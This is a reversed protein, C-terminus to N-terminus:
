PVRVRAWVSRLVKTARAHGLVAERSAQELARRAEASCLLGGHRAMNTVSYAAYAGVAALTRADDSLM